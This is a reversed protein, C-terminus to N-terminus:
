YSDMLTIKISLGSLSQVFNDILMWKFTKKDAENLKELVLEVLGDFSSAQFNIQVQNTNEKLKDVTKHQPFVTTIQQILRSRLDNLADPGLPNQGIYIAMYYYGKSDSHVAIGITTMQSDIMSQYHAPSRLLGNFARQISNAQSINERLPPMIQFQQQRGGPHEKDPAIHSCFEERAMRKSYYNALRNLKDDYSLPPYNLRARIKNITEVIKARTRLSDRVETGSEIIPLDESLLPFLIGCYFPLNVLAEGESDNIELRYVGTEKFEYDLSAIGAPVLKIVTGGWSFKEANHDTNLPIEEVSGRPTTIFCLNRFHQGIQFHFKKRSGTPINLPNEDLWKVNKSLTTPEYPLLEIMQDHRMEWSSCCTYLSGDLSRATNIRLHATGPKLQRWLTDDFRYSSPTNSIIQRVSKGNQEIEIEILENQNMWNLDVGERTISLNKFTFSQVPLREKKAPTAATLILSGCPTQDIRITLYYYGEFPFDLPLEFRGDKIQIKMAKEWRNDITYLLAYVIQGASNKLLQSKFYFREGPAFVQPLPEHSILNLENLKNDGYVSAGILVWLCIQYFKLSM